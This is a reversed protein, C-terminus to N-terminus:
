KEPEDDNAPTDDDINDFMRMQGTLQDKVAQQNIPQATDADPQLDTDAALQPESPEVM